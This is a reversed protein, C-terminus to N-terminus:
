RAAKEPAGVGSLDSLDSLPTTTMISPVKRIKRVKRARFSHRGATPLAGQCPNFIEEQRRRPGTRRCAKPGSPSPRPSKSQGHQVGLGLDGPRGTPAERVSELVLKDVKLMAADTACG